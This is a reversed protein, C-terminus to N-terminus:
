RSKSAKLEFDGIMNVDAPNLITNSNIARLEARSSGNRSKNNAVTAGLRASVGDLRAFEDLHTVGDRSNRAHARKRDLDARALLHPPAL